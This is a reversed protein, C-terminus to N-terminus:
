LDDLLVILGEAGVTMHSFGSTMMNLLRSGTAFGTVVLMARKESKENWDVMHM